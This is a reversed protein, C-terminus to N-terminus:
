TFKCNQTPGCKYGDQAVHPRDMPWPNTVGFQLEGGEAGPFWREVETEIFKDMRCVEQVFLSLM